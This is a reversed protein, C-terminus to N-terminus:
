EFSREDHCWGEKELSINLFSVPYWEGNRSNSVEALICARTTNNNFSVETINSGNNGISPTATTWTRGDYRNITWRVYLAQASRNGNPVFYNRLEEPLRFNSTAGAPLYIDYANLVYKQLISAERLPELNNERIGLEELASQKERLADVRESADKIKFVHRIGIARPRIYRDRGSSGTEARVSSAEYVLKTDANVQAQTFNCTVYGASGTTGTSTTALGNTYKTLNDNSIGNITKNGNADEVSWRIYGYMGTNDGDDQTRVEINQNPVVYLIEEITNDPTIGEDQIQGMAVETGGLLLVCSLILLKGINYLTYHKKM